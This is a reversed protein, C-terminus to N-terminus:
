DKAKRQQRDYRRSGLACGISLVNFVCFFIMSSQMSAMFAPANSASVAAHGMFFGLSTTVVIMSALMGGTRMTGIVAAAQGLYREDVSSLILTTNPTAFLGFGMGMLLQVAILLYLPSNLDICVALGIGTGCLAIGLASMSAAGYRDALRGALPSVLAQVGAQVALFLGTEYVSFGRLSQLYVSLYFGIGIGTAYNIFAALSSLSFVRNQTFLRLELLPYKSRWELRLYIILFVPAAALLWLAWTEYQLFSAGFTLCAMFSAYGLCGKWDFPEGRALQWEERLNHHMLFWAVVAACSSGWFLWRWGLSGAVLGALVPGCSVGAYVAASSIGLVTGRQQPPALAMIIALGSANFMAAGLGQLFRISLFLEYQEVFGLVLAGGAFIGLGGLFMHGRGWVDGMRGSSLQALALSLVYVTNVLSIQRAGIGLDQGVIPLIANVGALMFPLIFQSACVSFLVPRLQPSMSM